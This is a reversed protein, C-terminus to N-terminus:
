QRQPGASARASRELRLAELAARSATGVVVSQLADLRFSLAAQRSYSRADSRTKKPIAITIRRATAIL